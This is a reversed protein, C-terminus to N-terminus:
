VSRSLSAETQLRLRRRGGYNIVDGNHYWYFASTNHPVECTLNVDSGTKVYLEPSGLIRARSETPSSVSKDPSAGLIICAAVDPHM